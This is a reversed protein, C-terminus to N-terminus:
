DKGYYDADKGYCAVRLGVVSRLSWFEQSSPLKVCFAGHLPSPLSGSSSFTRIAVSCITDL